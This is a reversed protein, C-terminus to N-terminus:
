AHGRLRRRGLMLLLAGGLMAVGAAIPIAAESTGRRARLAPRAAARTKARAAPRAPALVTLSHTDIRDLTQRGLVVSLRQGTLRLRVSWPDQAAPFVALDLCRAQQAVTDLAHVFPHGNGDYLTYAWRGHPSQVRDVPNGRMAEGADHPDVIDRALLRGTRTNLARVRYQTPDLRSTYQILYIWEGNPSIADFSFDGRLPLYRLVQLSRAAVVVLSTSRQPFQVRPRILVLVRGDASLGSPAGDYAVVPVAFRGAIFGRALPHGARSIASLITDARQTHTVYRRSGDASSVGHAAGAIGLVPLGDAQVVAASALALMLTLVQALLFTRVTRGAM